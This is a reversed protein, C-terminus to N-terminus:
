EYGVLVIANAEAKACASREKSLAEDTEAIKQRLVGILHKCKTYDLEELARELAVAIQAASRPDVEASM